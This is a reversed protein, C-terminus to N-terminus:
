PTSKLYNTFILFIKKAGRQAIASLKMPAIDKDSLLRINDYILIDDINQYPYRIVDVKIGDLQFIFTGDEDVIWKTTYNKEYAFEQFQEKLKSAKFKETSFFVLDVSIIHGYQLALATGGVLNFNNLPEFAMLEKLLGLTAPYVAQTQLM